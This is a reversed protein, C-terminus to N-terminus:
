WPTEPRARVTRPGDIDAVGPLTHMSPTVSTAPILTKTRCMIWARSGLRTPEGNKALNSGAAQQSV